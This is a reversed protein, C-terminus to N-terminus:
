LLVLLASRALSERAFLYMRKQKLLTDRESQLQLMDDDIQRYDRELLEIRVLQRRNLERLENGEILCRATLLRRRFDDM